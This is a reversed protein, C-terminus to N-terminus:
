KTQNRMEQPILKAIHEEWEIRQTEKLVRPFKFAGGEKGKKKMWDYFVQLPLIEVYVEKIAEIREVRYDDNLVALYEDLKAAATGPDIADDTGLYWKHAFLSDYRIGTVTFENIKINFEDQLMRIARNMNDQSLHEGCLSLFLKTRGTFLIECAEKGTFKIVDGILYRWAGACSSLLLAYEKNVEVDAITLTEPKPLLNGDSDFNATNYPIFEYFLGNDLILTL